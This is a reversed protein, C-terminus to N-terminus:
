IRLKCYQQQQDYQPLQPAPYSAEDYQSQQQWCKQLHKYKQIHVNTEIIIIKYIYIYINM